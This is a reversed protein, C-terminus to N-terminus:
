RCLIANALMLGMLPDQYMRWASMLVILCLTLGVIRLGLMM